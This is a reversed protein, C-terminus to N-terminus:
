SRFRVFVLVITVFIPSQFLPTSVSYVAFLVRMVAPTWLDFLTVVTVDLAVLPLPITYMMNLEFGAFVSM